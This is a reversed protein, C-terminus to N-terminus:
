YKHIRDVAGPLPEGKVWARFNLAFFESARRPWQETWGSIHPTILANTQRWLPHEPPLPEPETVDLGAGALRGAALAEALADHDVISGRGINLLVATPKMLALRRRDILGETQPTGPLCIAAYDSRRLLEDLGEPGYLMENVGEPADIRTRKWGLVPCRFPELMAALTTGIDGLGIIGVTAGTLERCRLSKEWRGTSMNRMSAPIQHAFALMMALLHESIPVGYNGSSNSIQLADGYLRDAIPLVHDVGASVTHLWKLNKTKTLFTGNGGSVVIEARELLEDPAHSNPFLHFEFEPYERALGDIVAGDVNGMIVVTRM